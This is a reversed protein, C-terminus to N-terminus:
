EFIYEKLPLLCITGIIIEPFSMSEFNSIQMDAPPLGNTWEDYQYVNNNLKNQFSKIRLINSFM